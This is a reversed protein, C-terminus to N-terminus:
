RRVSYPPRKRIANKMKEKYIDSIMETMREAQRIARRRVNLGKLGYATIIM